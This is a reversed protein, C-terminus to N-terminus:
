LNGYVPEICVNRHIGIPDVYQASEIHVDDNAHDNAFTYSAGPTPAAFSYPSQATDMNGGNNTALTYPNYATGAQFNIEEYRQRLNINNEINGHTHETIAANRDGIGTINVRQPTRETSERNYFMEYENMDRAQEERLQMNIARIKRATINKAVLIILVIASLM